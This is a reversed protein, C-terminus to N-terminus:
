RHSIFQKSTDNFLNVGSWKGSRREAELAEVYVISGHMEIFFIDNTFCESSFSFGDSRGSLKNPLLTLM